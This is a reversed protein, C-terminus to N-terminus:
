KGLPMTVVLLLLFCSWARGGLEIEAYVCVCLWVLSSSDCSARAVVVNYSRAHAGGGRERGGRRADGWKEFVLLQEGGGQEEEAM